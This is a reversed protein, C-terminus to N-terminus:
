THAEAENSYPGFGGQNHLRVRYHITYSAPPYTTTNVGVDIYSNQNGDILDIQQWSGGGGVPEIWREIRTGTDEDAFENTLSWSLSADDDFTALFDTIQVSPPTQVINSWASSGADNFAHVRFQNFSCEWQFGGLGSGQGDTGGGYAAFYSTVDAATPNAASGFVETSMDFWGNNVFNCQIRFGTEDASNDTWHLTTGNADTSTIALGSPAAPSSDGASVMLWAGVIMEMSLNM